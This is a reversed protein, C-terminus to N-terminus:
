RTSALSPDAVTAAEATAPAPSAFSPARASAAHEARGASVAVRVVPAVNFALTRLGYVRHPEDPLPHQTLTATKVVVDELGVLGVM